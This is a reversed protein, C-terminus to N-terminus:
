TAQLGSFACPPGLRIASTDSVKFRRDILAMTTVATQCVCVEFPTTNGCAVCFDHGYGRVVDRVSITQALVDRRPIEVVETESHASSTTAASPVRASVDAIAAPVSAQPPPPSERPEVVPQAKTPIPQPRRPPQAVSKSTPAVSPLATTAPTIKAHKSGPLAGQHSATRPLTIM